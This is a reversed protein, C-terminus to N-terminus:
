LNSCNWTTPLVLCSYNNVDWFFDNSGFLTGSVHQKLVGRFVVAVAPVGFLTEKYIRTEKEPNRKQTHFSMGAIRSEMLKTASQGSFVWPNWYPNVFLWCNWTKLSNIRVASKQQEHHANMKATPIVRKGISFKSCIAAVLVTLTSFTRWHITKTKSKWKSSWGLVLWHNTVGM